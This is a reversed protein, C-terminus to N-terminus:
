YPWKWIMETLKHQRGKNLRMSFMVRMELSKELRNRRGHSLMGSVSFLREVFAQSAPATLLWKVHFSMVCSVYIHHLSDSVTSNLTM